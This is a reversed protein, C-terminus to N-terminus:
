QAKVLKKFDTTWSDTVINVFYIGADLGDLKFEVISEGENLNVAIASVTRGNLDKVQITADAAQTVHLKLLVM